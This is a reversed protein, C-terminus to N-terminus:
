KSSFARELALSYKARDAEHRAVSARNHYVALPSACSELALNFPSFYSYFLFYMAAGNIIGSGLPWMKGRKYFANYRVHRSIERDGVYAIPPVFRREFYVGPAPSITTFSYRHNTFLRILPTVTSRRRSLGLWRNCAAGTVSHRRHLGGSPRAQVPALRRTISVRRTELTDVFNFRAM